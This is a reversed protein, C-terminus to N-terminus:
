NAINRQSNRGGFRSEPAGPFAPLFTNSRRSIGQSSLSVQPIGAVRGFHPM